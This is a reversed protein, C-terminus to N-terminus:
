GLDFDSGRGAPVDLRGVGGRGDGCELQSFGNAAEAMEGRSEIRQANGVRDAVGREIGLRV